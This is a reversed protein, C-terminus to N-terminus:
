SPLKSTEKTDSLLTKAATEQWTLGVIRIVGGVEIRKRVMKTVVPIIKGSSVQYRFKLTRDARHGRVFADWERLVWEKDGPHIVEKWAGNQAEDIRLELLNAMAPSVFLTNGAADQIFLAEEGVEVFGLFVMSQIAAREEYVTIRRELEALKEQFRVADQYMTWGRRIWVMAKASFGGGFLTALVVALTDLSDNGTFNAVTVLPSAIASLGISLMM